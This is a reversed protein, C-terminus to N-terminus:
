TVTLGRPAATIPFIRPRPLTQYIAVHEDFASVDRGRSVDFGDCHRDPDGRRRRRREGQHTLCAREKCAGKPEGDHCHRARNEAARYSRQRCQRAQHQEGHKQNPGLARESHVMGMWPEAFRIVNTRAPIEQRIAARAISGAGSPAGSRHSSAAIAPM